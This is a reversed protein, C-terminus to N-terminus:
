SLVEVSGFCTNNKCSKTLKERVIKVNGITDKKKQCLSTKHKYGLHPDFMNGASCGREPRYRIEKYLNPTPLLSRPLYLGTGPGGLQGSICSSDTVSRPPNSALPGISGHLPPHPAQLGEGGHRPPGGGAGGDGAVVAAGDQGELCARGSSPTMHCKGLTERSHPVRVVEGILM